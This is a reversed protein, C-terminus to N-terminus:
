CQDARCQIQATVINGDVTAYAGLPFFIGNIGFDFTNGTSVVPCTLKLYNTGGQGNAINLVSATAGSILHINFIRTGTPITVTSSSADTVTTSILYQSTTISVTGVPAGYM